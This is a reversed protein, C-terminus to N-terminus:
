MRARHAFRQFEFCSRAVSRTLVSARCRISPSLSNTERVILVASDTVPSLWLWLLELEVYCLACGAARFRREIELPDTLGEKVFKTAYMGLNLYDLRRNAPLLRDFEPPSRDVLVAAAM